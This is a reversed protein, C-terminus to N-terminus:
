VGYLAKGFRQFFEDPGAFLIRNGGVAWLLTRLLREIYKFSRDADAPVKGARKAVVKDDRFLGITVAESRGSADQEFARNWLVAPIFESDLIPVM